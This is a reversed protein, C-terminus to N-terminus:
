ESCFSNSPSALNGGWSARWNSRFAERKTPSRHGEPCLIANGFNIAAGQAAEFRDNVLEARWPHVGGKDDAGHWRPYGPRVGAELGHEHRSQSLHVARGLRNAQRFIRSRDATSKTWRKPWTWWGSRPPTSASARRGPARGLGGGRPRGVRGAPDGADRARHRPLARRRLRLLLRGRQAAGRRGRNRLVRRLDDADCGAQLRWSCALRVARGRRWSWRPWRTTRWRTSADRRAARRGRVAQASVGRSRRSAWRGCRSTWWICGSTWSAAAARSRRTTSGPSTRGTPTTSSSTRGRLHAGAGRRAGARPHPADGGHLPLLPGRRAAPGGRAGRGGRRAGGRGNAGAAEPLLGGRRAGAGPHVAGCAPREAHRDRGRGRGRGSPRRPDPRADRGAGPAAAEAAMEPSPDAIAAVEVAGTELIAEMRHRGIWGVGLFGLRPRALSAAPASSRIQTMLIDGSSQPVRGAPRAHRRASRGAPGAPLHAHLAPRTSGAPPSPTWPRASARRRLGEPRARPRQDRRARALELAAHQGAAARGPPLRRHDAARARPDARAALDLPWQKGVAEIVRDCFRGGTLEKVQGIIGTTTTWRSRRPRAWPARWTWRFPAGRSRRDGARRRRSALRTLIAGLFGIGVIAVTQGAEIESRRFINMACGLPEGPFRSGPLCRRAPPGGGGRRGSRVRCLSNYSLAAVRDGSRCGRSARGWRRRGRGLGRARARRARHSVADVGAWGLAHPQLRLRRLRGASRPSARPGARSRSRARDAGPRARDPDRGADIGAAAAAGSM